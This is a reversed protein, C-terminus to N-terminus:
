YFIRTGFLLKYIWKKRRNKRNRERTFKLEKTEFKKLNQIMAVNTSYDGNKLDDPHNVSFSFDVEDIGLNEKANQLAEKILNQIEEKMKNEARVEKV